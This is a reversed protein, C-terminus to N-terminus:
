GASAACVASEPVLPGEPSGDWSEEATEGATIGLGAKSVVPECALCKGELFLLKALRAAGATLEASSFGPESRLM